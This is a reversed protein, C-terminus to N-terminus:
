SAGGAAVLVENYAGVDSTAVKVRRLHERGDLQFSTLRWDECPFLIGAFVFNGMGVFALVAFFFLLAFIWITITQNDINM